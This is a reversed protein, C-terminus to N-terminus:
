KCFKVPLIQYKKSIIKLLSSFNKVNISESNELIKRGNSIYM